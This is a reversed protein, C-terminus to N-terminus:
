EREDGEGVWGKERSRTTGGAVKVWKGGELAWRSESTSSGRLLDGRERERQIRACRVCTMKSLSVGGGQFALYPGVRGRKAIMTLLPLVGEQQTGKRKTQYNLNEIGLEGERMSGQQTKNSKIQVRPEVSSPPPPKTDPAFTGHLLPDTSRGQIKL